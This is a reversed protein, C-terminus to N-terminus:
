SFLDKLIKDSSEMVALIVATKKRSDALYFNQVQGNDVWIYHQKTLSVQYENKPLYAKFEGKKNTQLVAMLQNSEQMFIRVFVNELPEGKDDVVKGRINPIKFWKFLRFAIIILYIVCVIINIITPYFITIVLSLVFLPFILYNALRVLRERVLSWSFNPGKKITETKKQDVPILFLQKNSQKTIEFTEGKYFEYMTLYQPRSKLTPFSYKDHRVEVVYKGPPLQVGGYVGETNTVVTESTSRNDLNTINLIAFAVPEETDSDFVLGQPSPPPLIGLAQLIRLLIQLSLGWGFQTALLATAAIPIAGSIIASSIPGLNEGFSIISEPISQVPVVSEILNTIAEKPPILPIPIVPTPTPVIEGELGPASTPIPTTFVFQTAILFNVDNLVTIQGAQDTVIFNMTIIVDRTLIPLQQSWNGSSDVTITYNRDAEDPVIVTLQITSNAESTGTIIPENTTITLYPDPLTSLDQASISTNQEGISTVVLTPAATDITFSWTDSSRNNGHYDFAVIKWTHSGDSIGSAPILTYQTGSKTLTYSGNSTDTLPINNFLISGDLYLVYYGMLVNDTSEEWVFPPTSDTILSGNSPSILIPVSPPIEDKVTLTITTERDKPNTQLTEGDEVGDVAYAVSLSGFLVFYFILCFLVKLKM